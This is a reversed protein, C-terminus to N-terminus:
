TARARRGLLIGLRALLEAPAVPKTMYGNVEGERLGQVQDQPRSNVSLMLLPLRALAPDRRIERALDIGSDGPLNWDLLAAAPPTAKLILRAEEASCATVVRYGGSDLVRSLIRRYDASDDVILITEEKM